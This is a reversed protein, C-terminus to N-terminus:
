IFINMATESAPEFEKRLVVELDIVTGKIEIFGDVVEGAGDFPRSQHITCIFSVKRTQHFILGNITVQIRM